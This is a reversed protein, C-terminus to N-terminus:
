RAAEAGSLALMVKGSGSGPDAAVSLAEEARALPFRHTILPRVDVGDRLARLADVIEEVFRYSGTWTIERTVLDGLVAAVATGPLNGVQVLTGGRATARLVAGLAAPAGSAEFVVDVDAPLAEGRSLDRTEAAGMARAVALAAPSLDAALVAGAGRYRAAAVVLSGIPGAGNVLVTRGRLDPVRGVAHLAVALPEALAGRETDVGDPLPRVQDADVVRYESFGGDTHPTFAASGFYRVRPCLNTRGAIREPLTGDGVLRAPHVTVPLGEPLGTVGAGPAAIRGAVEHGLVLPHALAATGSAGKRWYAIDSGCIGGWELALLVQGPGPVPRPRTDVRVDEAGHAVVARMTDRETVTGATTM